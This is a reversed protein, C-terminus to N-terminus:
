VAARFVASTQSQLRQKEESKRKMLAEHKMEDERKKIYSMAEIEEETPGPIVVPKVKKIHRRSLKEDVWGAGSEVYLNALAERKRRLATMTAEIRARREKEIRKDERRAQASVTNILRQVKYEHDRQM